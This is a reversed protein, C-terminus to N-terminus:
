YFTIFYEILGISKESVEIQYKNRSMVFIIFFVDFDLDNNLSTQVSQFTKKFM